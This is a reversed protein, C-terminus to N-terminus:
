AITRNTASFSSGFNPVGGGECVCANSKRICYGGNQCRCLLQLPKSAADSGHYLDLFDDPGEEGTSQKIGVRSSRKAGGEEAL